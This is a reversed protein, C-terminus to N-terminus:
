GRVFEAATLDPRHKKAAKYGEVLGARYDAPKTGHPVDAAHQEAFREVAQVEVADPENGPLDAGTAFKEGYRTLVPLRELEDFQLDLETKTIEKGGESFKEVVHRADTRYLRDRLTPVPRGSKDKATADLQAPLIKGAKLLVDLRADINQKRTAEAFQEVQVKAEKLGGTVNVVAAGVLRQFYEAYQAPMGEPAPGASVPGGPTEPPPTEVPPGGKGMEAFKKCMAHVGADSMKAVDEPPCGHKGALEERMEPKYEAYPDMRTVESFFEVTGRDPHAIARDFRLVSPGRKRAECYSRWVAPPLGRPNLRKIEAVEGGLLALRRLMNGSGDMGNPPSKYVEASARDYMKDALVPRMWEPVEDLDGKLTDGERWLRDVCGVKPIGTGEEHGLTVPPRFGKARNVAHNKVMADLDALEYDTGGDRHQGAAFIDVGPMFGKRPAATLATVPATPM